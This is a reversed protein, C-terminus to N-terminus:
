FVWFQSGRVTGDDLEVSITYLGPMGSLATSYNVLSLDFCEQINDGATSTITLTCVGEGIFQLCLMNTELDFYGTAFPRAPAHPNPINPNGPPTGPIVIPIREEEAFSVIPCLVIAMVTTLTITQINMAKLKLASCLEYSSISNPHM